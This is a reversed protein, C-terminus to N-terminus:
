SVLWSGMCVRKLWRVVARGPEYAVLWVYYWPLRTSNRLQNRTFTPLSRNIWFKKIWRLGRKEQAREREGIDVSFVRPGFRLGTGHSTKGQRSILTIRSSTSRQISAIYYSQRGTIFGENPKMRPSGCGKCWLTYKEVQLRLM